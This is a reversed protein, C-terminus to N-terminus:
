GGGLWQCGRRAWQRKGITFRFGPNSRQDKIRSAIGHRADNEPHPNAFARRNKEHTISLSVFGDGSRADAIPDLRMGGSARQRVRLRGRIQGTDFEFWFYRRLNECRERTTVELERHFEQGPDPGLSRVQSWFEELFYLTQV